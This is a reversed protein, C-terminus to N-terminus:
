GRLAPKIHNELLDAPNFPKTLYGTRGLRKTQLETVADGAGTIIIVHTKPSIKKIKGLVQVGDLGPMGIDLLVIAPKENELIYLGDLGNSAQLPVFGQEALFEALLERIEPEDDVILIKQPTGPATM